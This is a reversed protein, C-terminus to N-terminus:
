SNRRNADSISRLYAGLDKYGKNEIGLPMAKDVGKFVKHQMINDVANEIKVRLQTVMDKAASSTEVPTDDNGDTVKDTRKMKQQRPAAGTGGTSGSSARKGM